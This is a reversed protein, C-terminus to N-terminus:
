VTTAQRRRQRYGLSLLSGMVLAILWTTPGSDPADFVQTDPRLIHFEVSGDSAAAIPDIDGTVFGSLTGGPDSGNSDNFNYAYNIGGLRGGCRAYFDGWVPERDTYFTWMMDTVGSQYPDFRIGNFTEPMNPNGSLVTQQGVSSINAGDLGIIDEATLSPSSEIIVHSFGADTGSHKFEYTYQWPYNPFPSGQDTVSWSMTVTYNEWQLGDPGVWLGDGSDAPYSPTYVLSGTYSAAQSFSSM